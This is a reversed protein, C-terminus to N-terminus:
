RNRGMIADTMRAVRAMAKVDHVRVADAGNVIAVAVTAATGELRDDVPLDGLVKGITSKNSTGVLIPRGLRKFEGLRRLLELNHEPTKGFGFGPDIWLRAEDIGARTAFALREEFFVCLDDVVDDYQPNQQMTRPQGLMHMLVVGVGTAAAVEAMAPDGRLATIDNIMTAGLTCARRATEARYTDVSLAAHVGDLAEFLPLVRRLEEDLGAPEAGPRTSEGGIDILDAGDQIMQEVRARAEVPDCVRSPGYFSDPTANLVGM